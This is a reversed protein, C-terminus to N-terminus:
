GEGGEARRLLGAEASLVQAATAWRSLPHGLHQSGVFRSVILAGGQVQVGPLKKVHCLVMSQDDLPWRPVLGVYTLLTRGEKRALKAALDYDLIIPSVATM